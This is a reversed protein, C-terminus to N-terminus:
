NWGGAANILGLVIVISLALGVRDRMAFVIPDYNQTGAWGTTIMRVMWASIPIVCWRLEWIGLYLEQAPESYTYTLFIINGFLAAMVAMNLLDPRDVRAYARGPVRGDAKTRALETMRKVCGLSMFVPFVFAIFWGSAAVSAAVSGAVVRLTYLTALVWIDVWRLAKLYVSYALSLTMYVAIISLLKWGISAAVSIAMLGLFISTIMGIKIPVTGAAFPRNRKREHQRDADLDLLDNVIYISSAAFSFAVMALLVTEIGYFDARQAAIFPLLLLVNKVWQYPRMARFLDFWRWGGEVTQADKGMAALGRLVSPSPDVAIVEDAKAWVKLDVTTDGIYAFGGDGYREVLAAGKAEGALNLDPTSGFHSGEFGFREALRDVLRQDSASALVVDRGQAQAAKAIALVNDNVPLRSVDLDSLNALEHKLRARDGIHQFATLIAEPAFKGLAVWFSELLMDTRLLSNDVDIVLPKATVDKM